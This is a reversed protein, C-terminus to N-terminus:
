AWKAILSMLGTGVLLCGNVGIQLTPSNQVKPHMFDAVLLDVLAMYILIGAAASDLVGQVILSTTSNENYSSSIGMGIGIGVPTTLSFFFVMTLITKWKFRAMVICGGMGMGEFFQHFSLAILLPRITSPTNSTGLAIGIIVSHVVIGLELVQSIVRHRIIVPDFDSAQYLHQQEADNPENKQHQHSRNFYGTAFCDIFLTGIAALMAVFGAFPFNHWPNEPLCDSGLREFSEPLIHIFGTALIVGAAFAKVLFFFNSEPKLFALSNGIIPSLIGISGSFFIAFIAVIKLKRAASSDEGSEEGACNDSEAFTSPLQSIFSLLLILFVVVFGNMNMM